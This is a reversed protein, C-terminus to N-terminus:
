ADAVDAGREMRRLHALLDPHPALQYEALYYAASARWIWEGDTRHEQPVIHGRDPDIVDEAAAVNSVVVDGSMMRAALRDCEARDPLRVHDASFRPVGDDDAFDYVGTTRIGGTHPSEELTAIWLPDADKLAALHFEPLAEGSWFVEVQAPGAPAQALQADLAVDWAASGPDVEILFVPIVAAGGGRWARWVQMVGPQSAMMLVLTPGADLGQDPAPAPRLDFATVPKPPDTVSVPVRDLASLDLGPEAIQRPIERLLAVEASTLALNSSALVSVLGVSFAALEGEALSRRLGALREAPLDAALRLLLRHLRTMTAWVEGSWQFWETVRAARERDVAAGFVSAGRAPLEPRAWLRLSGALAAQQYGSQPEGTWYAEIQPAGEGRAQLARGAEAALRWLEAGSAAELLYVRRDGHGTGSRTSRRIAVVKPDRFVSAVMARDLDDAIAPPGTRFALAPPLQAAADSIQLGSPLGPRRGPAAPLAALAEAEQPTVGVGLTMAANVVVEALGVVDEQGLWERAQTILPDPLRGALGSVLRHVRALMRWRDAATSGSASDAPEQETM